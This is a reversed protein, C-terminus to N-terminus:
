GLRAERLLIRGEVMVFLNQLLSKASSSSIRVDDTLSIILSMKALFTSLTIKIKGEKIQWTINRLVRVPMEFNYIIM